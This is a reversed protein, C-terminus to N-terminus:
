RLEDAVNTASFFEQAFDELKSDGHLRHSM